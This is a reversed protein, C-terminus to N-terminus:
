TTPMQSFQSIQQISQALDQRTALMTYMISGIMSQYERQDTLTDTAKAKTLRAGSSLPTSAPKSDQMGYRELITRNYWPQSIHIIKRERDRHVQIGLFYKLEGMDKMEYEESLQAKLDNVSNLDKWIYHSRGGVNRHHHWNGQQRLCM